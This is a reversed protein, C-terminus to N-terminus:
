CSGTSPSGSCKWFSLVILSNTGIDSDLGSKSTLNSAIYLETIYSESSSTHRHELSIRLMSIDLNYLNSSPAFDEDYSGM